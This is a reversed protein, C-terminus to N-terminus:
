DQHMAHASSSFKGIMVFNQLMLHTQWPAQMVHPDNSTFGARPRYLAADGLSDFIADQLGMDTQGKIDGVAADHNAAIRTKGGVHALQKGPM